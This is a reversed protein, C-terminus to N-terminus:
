RSSPQRCVLFSREGSVLDALAEIKSKGVELVTFCSNRNNLVEHLRYYETIVAM